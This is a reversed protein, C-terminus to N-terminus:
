KKGVSKKTQNFIHLFGDAAHTIEVSISDQLYVAFVDDLCMQCGSQINEQMYKM